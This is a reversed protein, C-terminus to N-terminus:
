SKQFAVHVGLGVLVAGGARRMLRQAHSSRRLRTILAGALVVCMVDASSFMLNVITGLVLFQLWVPFTASADIFQPLFAMFFIATKPNLVEVTISEFFARRASKPEIGSIVADDQARARFLSVGLWILYLAGALKVAMYLTPVAHFLVSLGAAAAVVHVYGGLHIGLAATLGSWRGRAMTQAAAYLMAPGPIYAFIATTAFFAFLLETSPM